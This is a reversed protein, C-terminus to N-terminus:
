EVLKEDFELLHERRSQQLIGLRDRVADTPDRRLGVGALATQADDLHRKASRLQDTSPRLAYSRLEGAAARLSAAVALELSPSPAAAAWAAATASVARLEEVSDRIGGPAAVLASLSEVMRQAARRDFSRGEVGEERLDSAVSSVADFSSKVSETRLYLATAMAILVILFLGGFIRVRDV